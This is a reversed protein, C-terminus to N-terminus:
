YRSAALQAILERVVPHCDAGGSVCEVSPSRCHYHHVRVQSGGENEKPGLKFGVLLFFRRPRACVARVGPVGLYYM